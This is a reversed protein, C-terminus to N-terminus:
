YIFKDFKSLIKKKFKLHHTLNLNFSHTYSNYAYYCPFGGLVRIISVGPLVIIHDLNSM